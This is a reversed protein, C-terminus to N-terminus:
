DASGAMKNLVKEVESQEMYGLDVLCEGILKHRAETIDYEIQIRMAEVLQDPIIFGMEVATTGFRKEHKEAEMNDGTNTIIFYFLM